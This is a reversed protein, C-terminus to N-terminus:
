AYAKTLSAYYTTGDYFVSIVDISGGATSLTKDGGTFKMSSTLAHSGTGDQTIIITMSTGAVANAITNITIGGTATLTYISGNDADLASSQDGSVSGLDVKTENFKKLVTNNGQITGGTQIGTSSINAWETGAKITELGSVINGAGYANASQYFSVKNTGLLTTEGNASAMFLHAENADTDTGLKGQPTSVFYADTGTNTTWDESATFYIGGPLQSRTRPFPNTTTSGYVGFVGLGQHERPYYEAPNLSINGQSSNLLIRPGGTSIEQPNFSDSAQITKDTFQIFRLGPTVPPNQAAGTDNGISDTGNWLTTMGFTPWYNYGFGSDDYQADNGILVVNSFSTSGKTSRLSTKKYQRRASSYFYDSFGTLSINAGTFNSVSSIDFEATSNTGTDNVFYDNRGVPVANTAIFTNATQASSLVLKRGTTSNEITHFIGRDYVGNGGWVYDIPSVESMIVNAEGAIFGAGPVVTSNALAVTKANESLPYTVPKNRNPNTSSSLGYNVLVMGNGYYNALDLTFGAGNFAVEEVLGVLKVVNSGATFTASGGTYIPLGTVPVSSAITSASLGNFMTRSKMAFGQPDVELGATNVGDIDRNLEVYGTGGLRTSATSGKTTLRADIVETATGSGSGVGTATFLTGQSVNIATGNGTGVGTATFTTGPNSDAAGIATFDTTGTSIITYVDGIIFSGASTTFFSGISNYNTTGQTLINYQQGVVFSGATVVSPQRSTIVNVDTLSESLSFANGTTTFNSDPTVPIATNSSSGLFINGEDLNPTANTRGAGQVIIQSSTVVKGIKQVLNAEGTPQTETLAGAGNIYLQAGITFGHGTFNMQGNTVIEGTETDPINNKVVGIAPMHAANESNALAVHPTSGTAAGTLYVAQGKTLTVGTDNKVEQQIAGNIDGIFIGEEGADNGAIIYGGTINGTTTIDQTTNIVANAFSGTYNNIASNARDTTYYLNTGESLDSTSKGSFATDFRAQTYYLNDGETIDTTTLSESIVGTTSNYNINGTASIHARVEAASPGTYTIVGTGNDYSLSGDGGSDTVSIAARSRTDTYYLNTGEALDDTSAPINYFTSGDNSFQWVDATENWRILTNSGAVPRNAIIEVTADSAANANLTIKQDRVYLDEVNRYNLNGSVELNGNVDLNGGVTLANESIYQVVDANSGADTAWLVAGAGDTKLVQGATGDFDPLTFAGTPNGGSAGVALKGPLLTTTAGGINVGIRAYDSKNISGSGTRGPSSVTVNSGGYLIQGPYLPNGGKSAPGGPYTIGNIDVKWNSGDPDNSDQHVNFWTIEDVNSTPGIRFNGRSSEGFGFTTTATSSSNGMKMAFSNYRIDNNAFDGGPNFVGQSPGRGVAFVSNVNTPLPIIVNSFGKGPYGNVPNLNSSSGIFLAGGDKEPQIFAISPPLNTNAGPTGLLLPYTQAGNGLFLNANSTLSNTVELNSITINGLLKTDIASNARDTTFYLNTGEPLHTTSSTALNINSFYLNTTGESLNDTTNNGFAINAQDQISGNAVRFSNLADKELGYGAIINASIAANVRDTTYYLNTSGETLDDTTGTGNLYLNTTGETLDDTTQSTFWNNALTNSFIADTNASIVGTTADYLIPATNSLHARVETASPGTYTFEGLGDYSLSGDGGTDNVSLLTTIINANAVSAVQSVVINSETQTVAVNSINATSVTVNPQSLTVTVNAM